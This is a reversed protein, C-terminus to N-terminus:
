PRPLLVAQDIELTVRGSAGEISLVCFQQFIRGLIGVISAGKKAYRATLDPMGTCDAPVGFAFAHGSSDVVLLVLKAMYKRLVGYGHAGHIEKGGQVALGLNQALTEDIM